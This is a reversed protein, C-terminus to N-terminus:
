GPDALASLLILAPRYRARRLRLLILTHGDMQQDNVVRLLWMVYALAAKMRLEPKAVPIIAPCATACSSSIVCCFVAMTSCLLAEALLM